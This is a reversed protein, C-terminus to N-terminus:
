FPNFANRHHHARMVNCFKSFLFTIFVNHTFLAKGKDDFVMHSKMDSLWESEVMIWLGVLINM